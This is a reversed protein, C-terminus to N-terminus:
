VRMARAKIETVQRRGREGVHYIDYTHGNYIIRHTHPSLDKIYDIRFTHHMESVEGGTYIEDGKPDRVEAWVRKYVAWTEADEGFTNKSTTLSQIEIRKTKNGARM